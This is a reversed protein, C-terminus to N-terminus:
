DVKHEARVHSLQSACPSTQLFSRARATRIATYLRFQAGVPWLRVQRITDDVTLTVYRALTKESVVINTKRMGPLRTFNATLLGGHSATSTVLLPRLVHISLKLVTNAAKSDAQAGGVVPRAAVTM